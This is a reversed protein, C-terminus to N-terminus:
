RRVGQCVHFCWACRGDRGREFCTVAVQPFACLRRQRRDSRTRYVGGSRACPHRRPALQPSAFPGAIQPLLGTGSMLWSTTPLVFAARRRGSRNAPLPPESGDHYARRVGVRRPRDRERARGRMEHATDVTHDRLFDLLAAPCARYHLRLLRQDRSDAAALVVTFFRRLIARPRILPSASTTPEANSVIMGSFSPM